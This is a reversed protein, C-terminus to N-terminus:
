LDTKSAGRHYDIRPAAGLPLPAGPNCDGQPHKNFYIGEGLGMGVSCSKQPHHM